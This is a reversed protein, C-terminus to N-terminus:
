ITSQAAAWSFLFYLFVVKMLQLWQPIYLSSNPSHMQLNMLEPHLQLYQPLMQRLRHDVVVQAVAATVIEKREKTNTTSTRKEKTTNGRRIKVANASRRTIGAIVGRLHLHIRRCLLTAKMKTKVKTVVNTDVRKINTNRGNGIEKAGAETIITVDPVIIM